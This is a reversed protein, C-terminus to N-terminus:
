TNLVVYRNQLYNFSQLKSSYFADVKEEIEAVKVNNDIKDNDIIAQISTILKAVEAEDVLDKSKNNVIIKCEKIITEKIEQLYSEIKKEKKSISEINKKISKKVSGYGFFEKTILTYLGTRIFNKTEFKSLLDALEEKTFVNNKHNNILTEIKSLLSLMKNKAIKQNKEKRETETENKKNREFDFRNSGAFAYYDTKGIDAAVDSYSESSEVKTKIINIKESVEAKTIQNKKLFGVLNSLVAHEHGELDGRYSMKKASNEKGEIGKYANTTMYYGIIKEWLKEFVKPGVNTKTSSDRYNLMKTAHAIEKVTLTEPNTILGFTLALTSTNIVQNAKSTSMFSFSYVFEGIRIVCYLDSGQTYIENEPIKDLTLNGDLSNLPFANITVNLVEFYQHTIKNLINEYFIAM